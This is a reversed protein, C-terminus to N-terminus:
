DANRKELPLNILLQTGKGVASEIHLMGGVANMREQMSSLGLGRSGVAHRLAQLDFGKGDDRVSCQVRGNEEATSISINRANAHKVANNLAEQVVRYIAIEAQAPLRETFKAEVRIPVKSRKSVSDALFRVAPVWGLDDLITPRLEHSYRRLQAEVENLLREIEIIKEREGSRLDDGLNALALHVAVLLQGADDHVAYAIGKIQEELRDNMQRLASVAEQFGRHAMEYPSLSETLFNTAARVFQEQDSDRRGAILESLAEHHACAVEMLSIGAALAKRGLEYACGLAAEGEECAYQRLGRRYEERLAFNGHAQEQLATAVKTSM